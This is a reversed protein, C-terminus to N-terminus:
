IYCIMPFDSRFLLPHYALLIDDPTDVDMATTCRHSILAAAVDLKSHAGSQALGRAGSALNLSHNSVNIDQIELDSALQELRGFPAKAVKASDKTRLVVPIIQEQLHSSRGIYLYGAEQYVHILLYFSFPSVSIFVV